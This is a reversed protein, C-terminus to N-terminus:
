HQPPTAPISDISVPHPLLDLPSTTSCV